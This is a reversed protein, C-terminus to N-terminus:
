AIMILVGLAGGAVANARTRSIDTPAAAFLQPEPSLEWANRVSIM